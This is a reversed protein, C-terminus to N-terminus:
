CYQARVKHSSNTGYRVSSRTKNKLSYIEMHAARFLRNQLLLVVM